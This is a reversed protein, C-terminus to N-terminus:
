KISLQGCLKEQFSTLTANGTKASGGSTIDRVYNFDKTKEIGETILGKYLQICSEM